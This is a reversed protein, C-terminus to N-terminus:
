AAAHRYAGTSFLGAGELIVECLSAYDLGARAAMIPLPSTPSMGPMTDVGLVYENEGHTVLLTVVCAGECSLARAARSALNMVGRLRTTTLLPPRTCDGEGVGFVRDFAVGVHVLLAHVHREVLAATDRALAAEVAKGLEAVSNAESRNFSPAERRPTVSVPFGFMGHLGELDALDAKTALYYPPTPVNHLRFMEKAKLKDTALASALVGSGTYPIGMLELMGQVCGDEAWPGELAIFAVDIPAERLLEDLGCEGRAWLIRAIDHGRSELAGAIAEGARLSVNRESRWGGML